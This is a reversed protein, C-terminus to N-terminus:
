IKKENHNFIIAAFIIFRLLINNDKYLHQWGSNKIYNNKLYINNFTNLYCYISSFSIDSMILM